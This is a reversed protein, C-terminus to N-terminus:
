FLRPDFFVISVFGDKMKNKNRSSWLRPSELMRRLRLGWKDFASKYGPSGPSPSSPTHLLERALGCRAAAIGVLHPFCGGDSGFWIILFVFAVPERGGGLPQPESWCGRGEVRG